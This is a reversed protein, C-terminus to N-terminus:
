QCSAFWPCESFSSLPIEESRPIKPASTTHQIKPASTHQGVVLPPNETFSVEHIHGNAVTNQWSIIPFFLWGSL